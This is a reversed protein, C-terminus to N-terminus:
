NGYTSLVYLNKSLIILPQGSIPLGLVMCLVLVVLSRVAFYSFGTRQYVIFIHFVIIYLDFTCFILPYIFQYHRQTSFDM